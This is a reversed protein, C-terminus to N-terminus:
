TFVSLIVSSCALLFYQSTQQSFSNNFLPAYPPIWMFHMSNSFIPISPHGLPPSLIFPLQHLMLCTLHMAHFAFLPPHASARSFVFFFPYVSPVHLLHCILHVSFSFIPVCLHRLFNSSSFPQLRFLSHVAHIPHTVILTCLQGHFEIFIFSPLRLLPYAPLMSCSFLFIHLHGPCCLCASHFFFPPAVTASNHAILTLIQYVSPSPHLVLCSRSQFFCTLWLLKSEHLSFSWALTAQIFHTLWLLPVILLTAM